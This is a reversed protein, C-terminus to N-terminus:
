EVHLTYTAETSFASSPLYGKVHLTHEGRPLPHILLWYGADMAPRCALVDRWNRACVSEDAGYVNDDPFRATFVESEEYHRELHAVPRGDIEASIEAGAIARRTMARVDEVSLDRDDLLAQVRLASVAPVLIAKGHPITCSRQVAGGLSGALFWVRGHQGAGCHAGTTDLLPSSPTPQALAWRWWDAAWAEHSQGYPRSRPAAVRPDPEDRLEDEPAELVEPTVDCAAAAFLTGLLWRTTSSM